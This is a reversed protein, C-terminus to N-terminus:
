VIRLIIFREEESGIGILSSKCNMLMDYEDKPVILQEDLQIKIVQEYYFKKEWNNIYSEYKRLGVNYNNIKKNLEM